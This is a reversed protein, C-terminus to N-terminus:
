GHSVEALDLQDQAPPADDPKEDDWASHAIIGVEEMQAIAARVDDRSRKLHFRITWSALGAQQLAAIKGWVPNFALCLARLAKNQRRLTETERTHSGTLFGDIVLDLEQQYRFGRAHLAKRISLEPKTNRAGIGAMMRSRTEQDVIDAM